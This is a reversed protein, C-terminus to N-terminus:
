GDGLIRARIERKRAAFASSRALLAAEIRRIVEDDCPHRRMALALGEGARAFGAPSRHGGFLAEFVVGRGPDAIGLDRVADAHRQNVRHVITTTGAPLTGVMLGLGNRVISENRVHM